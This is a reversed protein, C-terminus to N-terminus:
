AHAKPVAKTKSSSLVETYLRLLRDVREDWSNQTAYAIIAERDWQKTLTYILTQKFQEPNWFDVLAGVQDNSVVQPNGGVRTTVVPLGCAMAELLVNAWGEYSTASVFADAASLYWRLNEPKQPGCFVVSNELGLTKVLEELAPRMNGQTSGGGVILFKLNPFTEKLKPLQAIIRHFGKLEVLTGVGIIVPADLPINIRARAETKDERYFKTLDVGNGIVSTKTPIIKLRDCVDVKLSDSVAILKSCRSLSDKLSPEMPGGVLRADKSGRITAVVPLGARQALILAAATDPYLFHSDVITPRFSVCVADFVKRCGLAMFYPDTGKFYRPFSFVRPRYIDVGELTEFPTSIPRYTTRFLRIIWDFPSWTQPSIVVIPVKKAVRFLREKVPTGVTPAVASPFMNSFVVLRIDQGKPTTNETQKMESKM